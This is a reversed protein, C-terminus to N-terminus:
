NMMMMMMITRGAGEEWCNHEAAKDPWQLTHGVWPQPRMKVIVMVKMLVMMFKMSMITSFIWMLIPTYAKGM